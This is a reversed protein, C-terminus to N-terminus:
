KKIPAAVPAPLPSQEPQTEATTLPTSATTHGGCNAFAPGAFGLTLALALVLRM